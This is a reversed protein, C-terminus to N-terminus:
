TLPYHPYPEPLAREGAIAASASLALAAAVAVMSAATPTPPPAPPPAPPPIPALLPPYRTAVTSPGETPRDAKRADLTLVRPTPAHSSLCSPLSHRPSPPPSSITALLLRCHCAAFAPSLQHASAPRPSRCARCRCRSTLLPSSVAVALLHHNRCPSLPPPSSTSAAAITAAIIVVTVQFADTLVVAFLEDVDRSQSSTVVFSFGHGM